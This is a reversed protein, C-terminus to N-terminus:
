WSYLESPIHEHDAVVLDLLYLLLFGVEVEGHEQLHSHTPIHLESRIYYSHAVAAIFIGEVLESMDIEASPRSVIYLM